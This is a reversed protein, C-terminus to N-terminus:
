RSTPPRTIVPAGLSSKAPHAASASASQSPPSTLSVGSASALRARLVALLSLPQTLYNPPPRYYIEFHAKDTDTAAPPLLTVQAGGGGGGGADSSGGVGVSRGRDKNTGSSATDTGAPTALMSAVEQANESRVRLLVDKERLGVSRVGLASCGARLTALQLLRDVGGGPPFPGYAQRLETEVRQVEAVSQALAIRRYAEMRRQDSPIYTKPILGTVGIEITTESATETREHKLEKVARDLLQCYMEYGVAAIHGSQEPGLINGAGRIELDRMAIKFGAGLMSFEEIAKLRKVSKEPIHREPDLLMYCYARHKSRGVRGRLQHLDALGFKDAHNIFMTNATPIDIGSEIITTSVLIDAGDKGPGRMFRLMVEELEHDPMQGHGVVIRADPALKQIEDAVSVIDYVRNHVFYCQGGRSLERAIAQQVRRANYPIVETVVARRDVPATTLSSIDRLGLMSLHLTRPIPTASLTLVDVTMRLSLLREKHEVGFRQEEDIVVLGLDAFKVDKSLLRHTGIIVDVSGKRLDALIRNIEQTTKFRSISEVRFPYDAFRAKFTREHQEALVTTPVLVATQKGFECAKFAARIALETKGFGVDGCLLRDMPRQTQMDRKIESLAALQDPTEEFPFEGEFEQQWRTDDPFRTGPLHERAARIRLLEGALDKVSEAVQEKQRKWRTGGLTSLTPASRAGLGGVYKQVHDIKGAPVHIQSRGAFEITLFEEEGMQTGDGADPGSGGRADRKKRPRESPLTVPGAAKVRRAQMVRLGRFVGIGHDRHVVYDGPAFDLFTDIARAARLRDGTGATSGAGGRRARLASRRAEFRHLLEHYPLVILGDWEFGRHLYAALPVIRGSSGPAHEDLLERLRSFEGGNAACIVARAGSAGDGRGEGGTRRALDRLAEGTDDPLAGLSRVPLEVRRDTSAATGPSFQNLEIFCAFREQLTKLVSPPGFVGQSGDTLREFYGRAQELVEFTEHLVVACRAPLLQLLSVGGAGLGSLGPTGSPQGGTGPTADSAMAHELSACVLEVSEVARDSAMSDIDIENIKEIEDGFFDLRVPPAPGSAGAPPFIDLIGGRLAYDGAEEISDVRQYGASELWRCLEAPDARQARRIVRVLGELRQAPPVPQMLAQVPCVLVDPLGGAGAHDDPKDTAALALRVIALRAALLDMSVSTEGPLTELAPFLECRVGHAGLEAVCEDAEDLHAVVFLVPRQAIRAIAAATLSASSGQSGRAAIFRGTKGAGRVM